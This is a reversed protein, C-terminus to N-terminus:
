LKRLGSARLQAAGLRRRALHEHKALRVRGRSSRSLRLNVGRPSLIPPRRVTFICQYDHDNMLEAVMGLTMATPVWAVGYTDDVPCYNFVKDVLFRPWEELEHLELEYGPWEREEGDQYRVIALQSATDLSVLECSRGNGDRLPVGSVEGRYPPM